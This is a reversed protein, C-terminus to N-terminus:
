DEPFPHPKHSLHGTKDVRHSELELGTLGEYMHERIYSDKYNLM